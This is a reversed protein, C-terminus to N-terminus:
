LLVFSINNSAKSHRLKIM